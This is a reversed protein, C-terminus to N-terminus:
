GHRVAETSYRSAFPVDAELLRAAAAALRVPLELFSLREIVAAGAPRQLARRAEGSLRALESAVLSDARSGLLNLVATLRDFISQAEKRIRDVEGAVLRVWPEQPERALDDILDALGKDIASRLPAIAEAQVDHGLTGQPLATRRPRAFIGLRAMANLVLRFAQSDEPCYFRLTEEMVKPGRIPLYKRVYGDLAVWRRVLDGMEPHPSFLVARHEGQPALVAPRGSMSREFREAELPNDIFLRSPCAFGSFTALAPANQGAEPWVPGHYYPVEVEPTLGTALGKDELRVNLIAAGTLLYEHTFTPKVGTSGQWGPRGSSLYFAGGCSGIVAGGSDLFRRVEADAGPADEARDLGWTSFGGPIVLLDAEGLSGAAIGRADTSVFSLGLSWLCHAYYAAYPYGSSPGALLVIQPLAIPPHEWTERPSPTAAFGLDRLRSALPDGPVFALGEDCWAVPEGARAARLLAVIGGLGGRGETWGLVQRM